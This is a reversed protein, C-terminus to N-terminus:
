VFPVENVVSEQKACDSTVMQLPKGIFSDIDSPSHTVKTTWCITTPAAQRRVSHWSILGGGDRYSNTTNLGSLYKLWTKRGHVRGTELEKSM